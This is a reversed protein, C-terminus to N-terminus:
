IIFVLLLLKRKWLISEKALQVLQIQYPVAIGVFNM